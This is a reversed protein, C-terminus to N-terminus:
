NYIEINQKINLVTGSDSKDKCIDIYIKQGGVIGTDTQTTQTTINKGNESEETTINIAKTYRETEIAESGLRTSTPCNDIKHIDIAHESKIKYKKALHINEIGLSTNPENNSACGSLALLLLTPISIKYLQSNKM